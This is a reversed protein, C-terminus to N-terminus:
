NSTRNLLAPVLPRAVGISSRVRSCHFLTTATFRVPAKRHACSAMLSIFACCGRPPRIMLLPEREACAGRGFEAGYVDVFCARVPRVLDMESSQRFYSM